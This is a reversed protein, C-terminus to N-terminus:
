KKEGGPKNADEYRRITSERLKIIEAPREEGQYGLRRARADWVVRRKRDFLFTSMDVNALFDRSSYEYGLTKFLAMNTAEEQTLAHCIYKSGTPSPPCADTMFFKKGAMAPYLFVREHELEALLACTIITEGTKNCPHGDTALQKQIDQRIEGGLSMALRQSAGPNKPIPRYDTRNIEELWEKVSLFELKYSESVENPVEENAAFMQSSAYSFVGVVFVSCLTIVATPFLRSNKTVPKMGACSSLKEILEEEPSRSSGQM